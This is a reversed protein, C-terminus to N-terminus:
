KRLIPLFQFILPHMKHFLDAKIDITSCDEKDMDPAHDAPAAAAYGQFYPTKRAAIEALTLSRADRLNQALTQAFPAPAASAAASATLSATTSYAAAAAFPSAYTPAHSAALGSYVIAAPAAPSPAQAHRLRPNPNRATHPSASQTLRM